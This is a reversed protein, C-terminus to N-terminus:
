LLDDGMFSRFNMNYNSNFEETPIFFPSFFPLGRGMFFM